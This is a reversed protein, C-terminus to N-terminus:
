PAPTATGLATGFARAFGSLRARAADPDDAGPTYLTVAAAGRDSGRLRAAADALKARLVSATATGHMDFWTWALLDGPAGRAAIERVRARVTGLEVERLEDAAVIWGRHALPRTVTNVLEHGQRQRQYYAVDMFVREDGRQYQVFLRQPAGAYVGGLLDGAPAPGIWGDRGPPAALAAPADIATDARVAFVPGVAIATVAAVLTAALAAPTAAAAVPVGAASHEAAGDADAFTNGIMFLVFVVLGFFVWGYIIHDVGAALKYDSLHAIMIIGYARFGNAVLPVLVVLAMFALRRPWTRYARYAFLTGVALTAILYNIGSCAEAVVFSGSPITINRAEVFVPMGTVQLWFVAQVATWDQLTPMMFEGEPVMFYLYGLPFRLRGAIGDGVLAWASGILMGVAAIHMLASLDLFRGALWLPVNAALFALGLRSVSPTLTVIEARREWVLLASIPAILFCHNFNSSGSWIRIMGAFTGAYVAAVVAFLASLALLHRRWPPLPPAFPLTESGAAM